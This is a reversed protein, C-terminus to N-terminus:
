RRKALFGLPVAVIFGLIAGIVIAEPEYRNDIAYGLVLGVVVGIVAGGILWVPAGSMKLSVGGSQVNAGETALMGVVIVVGTGLRVVDRLNRYAKFAAARRELRFAFFIAAPVGFVMLLLGLTGLSEPAAMSLGFVVLFVAIAPGGGIPYVPILAVALFWGILVLSHLGESARWLRFLDELNRWEHSQVIRLDL